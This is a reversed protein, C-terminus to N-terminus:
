TFSFLVMISAFGYVLIMNSEKAEKQPKLKSSVMNYEWIGPETAIDHIRAYLYVLWRCSNFTQVTREGVINCWYYLIYLLLGCGSLFVYIFKGSM